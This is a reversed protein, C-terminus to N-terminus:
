QNMVHPSLPGALTSSRRQHCRHHDLATPSRAASGPAHATMGREELESAAVMGALGPGVIIVDTDLASVDHALM